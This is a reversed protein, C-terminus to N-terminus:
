DSYYPYFKIATITMAGSGDSYDCSISKVVYRIPADTSHKKYTIVTDVDLWPIPITQLTVTEQMNTKWYLEIDAREQALADNLINEYEGGTLVLTREGIKDISFASQPKKNRAEAFAQLGGYDVFWRRTTTPTTNYVRVLFVHYYPEGDYMSNITTLKQSNQPANTYDASTDYIYGGSSYTSGDAGVIDLFLFFGDSDSIVSPNSSDFLNGNIDRFEEPFVIGVLFQDPLISAVESSSIQCTLYNRDAATGNYVRGRKLMQWGNSWGNEGKVAYDSPFFAGVSHTRGYVQIHNKVNEYDVSVSEQIVIDKLTEYPLMVSATEDVPIPKYCFVGDVNFYIAYNPMIDRLAALMEYATTGTEFEMDYPVPQIEGNKLRCEDLDYDNIGFRKLIRIMVGRVNEGKPIQISTGRAYDVVGGSMGTLKAMMDVCSLSLTNSEADYDSQPANVVFRGLKYVNEDYVVSVDVFTAIWSEDALRNIPKEGEEKSIVLKLDVNTRLDSNADKSFNMGVIEGDASDVTYFKSAIKQLFDVHLEKKINPRKLIELNTSYQSSM